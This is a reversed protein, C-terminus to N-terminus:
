PVFGEPAEPAVRVSVASARLEQRERVRRVIVILILASMISLGDSVIYVTAGSRQGELDFDDYLGSAVAYLVSSTLWGAWWWHLLAPVPNQHWAPPAPAPMRPDSGRWVDNAIQKPRFFNLIPVFWAGISWGTRYRLNRVGLRRVNAYARYFWILFVVVTALQLVGGVLGTAVIHADNADIEDQSVREGDLLRDILALDFFGSVIAAASAVAGAALLVTVATTLGGIAYPREPAWPPQPLAGPLEPRPAGHEAM